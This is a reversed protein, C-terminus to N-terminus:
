KKPSSQEFEEVDRGDCKINNRGHEKAYYMAADARGLLENTSPRLEPYSSFGVSVRVSLQQGDYEVVTSDIKAKVEDLIQKCMDKGCSLFALVFEEGGYRAAIGSYKDAAEELIEALKQLVVDGCAHGYTDNFGKFHDIDFLAVSLELGEDEARNGYEALQENLSRRNFIGTLGDKIAMQQVAYYLKINNIGLMVQAGINELLSISEDFNDQINSGCYIIGEEGNEDFLPIKAVVALNDDLSLDRYCDDELKKDIGIGKKDLANLGNEIVMSTFSKMFNGSIKKAKANYIPNGKKSAPSLLVCCFLLNEMSECMVDPVTDALAKIDLCTSVNKLIENQTKIEANSRKIQRNASEMRIRQIGLEENAKKIKEQHLQLTENMETTKEAMRRQEFIKHEIKLYWGIFINTLLSVAFVVAAIEATSGLAMVANDGYDAAKSILLLKVLVFVTIPFVMTGIVITRTYRDSYDFLFIMEVMRMMFIIYAIVELERVGVDNYVIFASVVLFEIVRIFILLKDTKPTSKLMKALIIDLASFGAFVLMGILLMGRPEKIYYELAALFAILELIAHMRGFKFNKDEM